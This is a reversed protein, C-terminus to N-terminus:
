ITAAVHACGYVYLSRGTVEPRETHKNGQIMRAREGVRPHGPLWMLSRYWRGASAREPTENRKPHLDIDGVSLRVRWNAAALM